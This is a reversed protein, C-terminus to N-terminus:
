SGTFACTNKFCHVGTHWMKGCPSASGYKKLMNLMTRFSMSHLLGVHLKGALTLYKECIRCHGSHLFPTHGNRCVDTLYRIFCFRVSMDDNGDSHTKTLLLVAYKIRNSNNNVRTCQFRASLKHSEVTKLKIAYDSPM